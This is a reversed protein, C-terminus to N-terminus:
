CMSDSSEGIQKQLKIGRESFVYLHDSDSQLVKANEKSFLISIQNIDFFLWKSRLVEKQPDGPVWKMCYRQLFIEHM